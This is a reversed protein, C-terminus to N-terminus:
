PPQPFDLTSRRADPTTLRLARPEEPWRSLVERTLALAEGPAGLVLAMEALQIHERPWPDAQWPWPARPLPHALRWARAAAAPDLAPVPSPSRTFVAGDGTLVALSWLPSEHLAALLGLRGPDLLCADVEWADLVQQWGPAVQAVRGYDGLLDQYPRYRNDIFVKWAPAREIVLGGNEYTTFLRGPELPLRQLQALAEVPLVGAVSSWGARRESGTLLAFRDTLLFLSVLLLLSAGVGGAGRGWRPLPPFMQFILLPATWAFLAVHRQARLTMLAFAGVCIALGPSLGRGRSCVLGAALIVLLPMPLLQRSLPLSLFPAFERIVGGHERLIPQHFLELWLGWGYPTVFTALLAAILALGLPRARDWRRAILAEGALHAGLIAVALPGSGHLNIWLLALPITWALGRGGARWREILAVQLLALAAALIHLRVAMQDAGALAAAAAVLAAPVAGIRKAGVRALGAAMAAFLLAKLTVLARVGGWAHILFLLVEGLWHEARYPAGGATFSFPEVRPVARHELIWRGTGVAWHWDLEADCFFALAFAFVAPAALAAHRPHFISLRAARLM